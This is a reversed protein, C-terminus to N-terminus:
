LERQDNGQAAKERMDWIENIDGDSGDVVVTLALCCCITAM